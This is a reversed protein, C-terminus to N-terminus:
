RRIIISSVVEGNVIAGQNEADGGRGRKRAASRSPRQPVNHAEEETQRENATSPPAVRPLENFEPKWVQAEESRCIPCTPVAPPENVFEVFIFPSGCDMCRFNRRHGPVPQFPTGGGGSETNLFDREWDESGSKSRRLWVYSLALIVAALLAMFGMEEMM